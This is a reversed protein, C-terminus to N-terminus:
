FAIMEDKKNEKDVRQVSVEGEFVELHFSSM